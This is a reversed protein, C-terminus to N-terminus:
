LPTTSYDEFANGDANQSNLMNQVNMNRADASLQGVIATDKLAQQVKRTDAMLEKLGIIDLTIDM